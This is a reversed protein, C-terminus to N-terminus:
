GSKRMASKCGPCQKMKNVEDVSVTYNCRTCRYVNKTKNYVWVATLPKEVTYDSYM